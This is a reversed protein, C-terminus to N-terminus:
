TSDAPPPNMAEHEDRFAKLKELSAQARLSGGEKKRRNGQYSLAPSSKRNQLPGEEEYGLMYVEEAGKSALESAQVSAVVLVQNQPDFQKHPKDFRDLLVQKPTGEGSLRGVYVVKVDGQAFAAKDLFVYALHSQKGDPDSIKDVEKGTPAYFTYP